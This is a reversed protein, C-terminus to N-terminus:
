AVDGQLIPLTVVKFFRFKDLLELVKMAKQKRADSVYIKKHPDRVDVGLAINLALQIAVADSEWDEAGIDIGFSELAM